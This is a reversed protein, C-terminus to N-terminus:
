TQCICNEQGNNEKTDEITIMRYGEFASDCKPCSFFDVIDFEEHDLDSSGVHNLRTNCYYCRM